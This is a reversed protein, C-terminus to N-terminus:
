MGTKTIVVSAYPVLARILVNTDPDPVVQVICCGVLAEALGQAAKSVQDRRAFAEGDWYGPLDSLVDEALRTKLGAFSRGQIPACGIMVVFGGTTAPQAPAEEKPAGKSGGARPGRRKPAEEAPPPTPTPAQQPAAPAAAEMAPAVALAPAPPATVVPTAPAPAELQAIRKEVLAMFMQMDPSGDGLAGTATDILAIAADVTTCKVLDDRLTDITYHVKTPTAVATAPAVEAVPSQEGKKWWTVLGAADAKWQYQSIDHKTAGVCIRCPNGDNPSFGPNPRARCLTCKDSVWPPLQRAMTAAAPQTAVPADAPPNVQPNTSAPPVAAKRGALFKSMADSMPKNPDPILGNMNNIRAVFTLVDETGGCLTVFPCGGFANCSEKSAMPLEFPDDILDAAEVKDVLPLVVEQWYDDIQRPTLEAEVRSVLPAGEHDKIYQNHAITVIRPDMLGKKRVEYLHFGAYLLMQLSKALAKGTKKIHNRNKATKHDEIRHHDPVRYDIKNVLTSKKGIPMSGWAETIGSPRRELVGSDIGKQIFVKILSADAPSIRKKTDPDIDWGEPYLEPAGILFRECVGHLCTGFGFHDKKYTPLRLKYQFAWKRLCGQEAENATELQSASLKM